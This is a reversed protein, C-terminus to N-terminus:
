LPGSFRDSLHLAELWLLQIQFTFRERQPKGMEPEPFEPFRMERGRIVLPFGLAPPPVPPLSCHDRGLVCVCVGM